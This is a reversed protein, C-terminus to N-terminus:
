AQLCGHLAHKSQLQLDPPIANLIYEVKNVLALLIQYTFSELQLELLAQETLNAGRRLDLFYRRAVM